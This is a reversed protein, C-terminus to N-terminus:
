WLCLFTLLSFFFSVGSQDSHVCRARRTSRRGWERMIARMVFWFLFGCGDRRQEETSRSRDIQGWVRCRVPFGWIWSSNAELGPNLDTRQLDQSSDAVSCSYHPLKGCGFARLLDISWSRTFLCPSLFDESRLCHPFLSSSHRRVVAATHRVCECSHRHPPPPHPPARGGTLHVPRVSAPSSVSARPLQSSSSRLLCAFSRVHSSTFRLYPFFKPRVWDTTRGIGIFVLSPSLFSLNIKWSQYSNNLLLSFEKNAM